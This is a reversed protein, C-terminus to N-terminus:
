LGLNTGIWIGMGAAAIGIVMPVLLIKSASFRSRATRIDFMWTSFTTFGGLLGITLPEAVVAQQSAAVGVVVGLALSGAVNVITIALPFGSQRVPVAKVVAWRALAGLGGALAILLVTM